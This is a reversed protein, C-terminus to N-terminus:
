GCNKWRKRCLPPYSVAILTMIFVRGGQAQEGQGNLISFLTAGGMGFMLGLGNIFNYVPIALNLATLGESGVGNAIFYTDALIYLSLGLMSLVNFSVYHTFQKGISSTQLDM